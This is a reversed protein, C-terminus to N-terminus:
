CARGVGFRASTPAAGVAQALREALSCAFEGAQLASIARLTVPASSWSATPPRQGGRVTIWVLLLRSRTWLATVRGAVTEARSQYFTALSHMRHATARTCNRHHCPCALSHARNHDTNPGARYRYTVGIGADNLSLVALRYRASPPKIGDQRCWNPRSTWWSLRRARVASSSPCCRPRSGYRSPYRPVYRPVQSYPPNRWRAAPGKFGERWPAAGHDAEM